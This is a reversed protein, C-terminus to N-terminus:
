RYGGEMEFTRIEDINDIKKQIDENVSERCDKLLDLMKTCTKTRIITQDIGLLNPPPQKKEKRV